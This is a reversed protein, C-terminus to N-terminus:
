TSINGVYDQVLSGHFEPDEAWSVTRRSLEGTVFRVPQSGATRRHANDTPFRPSRAHLLCIAAAYFLTFTEYLMSRLAEVM